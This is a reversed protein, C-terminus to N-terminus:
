VTRSGGNLLSQWCEQIIGLSYRQRIEAAKAAMSLRLPEDALLSRIASALGVAGSQPSVLIGDVGNRIIDRPGTECDFSVVPCGCSMAEILVNPFGEFRSSLVYLDARRYWDAVNGARGPLRIRNELGLSRVQNELAHHERGEGLIVLDWEECDEALFAFADILIGFQKEEGLRGIALLLMRQAPLVSEPKVHPEGNELPWSVHNPIVTVNSGPCNQEIWVQGEKSLAVVGTAKPYSWRRLFEWFAGLPIMPPYTRESVFVRCSLGWGALVSLIGSTTMMGLVVDPREEQFVRRLARVRRVNAMVASFLGTSEGALNLAIRKVTPHLQFFDLGTSATTAVSVDWGQEVWVRSLNATVREAGGSHLSHIVILIKM